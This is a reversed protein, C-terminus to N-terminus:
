PMQYLVQARLDKQVADALKKYAPYMAVPAWNEPWDMQLQRTVQLVGGDLEYHSQYHGFPSDIRVDKPRSFVKVGAPLTFQTQERCHGSLVVFPLHREALKAQPFADRLCMLGGLGQPIAFAGPGPMPAIGTLTYRANLVYPRTLDYADPLDFRGAGHQGTKDLLDEAMKEEGGSPVEAFVSRMYSEVQGAYRNTSEGTVSGDPQLVMRTASVTRDQASNLTPTKLLAAHGSGDDLVLATQGLLGEDMQGYALLTQSPDVFRHEDPLYLMVHDFVAFPVSVPLLTGNDSYDLLAQSSRIQRAALLSQLLTAADRSDAYGNSLVQAARHPVMNTRWAYLDIHRIQSRVWDYLLLAQEHPSAIGHTLKDALRQVEPTVAAQANARRGYAEAAAQWDSFNSYCLMPSVDEESVSGPEPALAEHPPVTWRWVQLDGIIQRDPAPLDRAFVKLSWEAPAKITYSGGLLRDHVSWFASQNIRAGPWRPQGYVKQWHITLVAGVEVGPFVVTKIQHDVYMPASRSLRGSQDFIKDAPVAMRRGDATTTYAELVKVSQAQDGYFTISQQGDDSVARATEIRKVYVQDVVMRGDAQFVVVRDDRVITVDPQYGQAQALVPLLLLVWLCRKM